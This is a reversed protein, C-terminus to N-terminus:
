RSDGARVHAYLMEDIKTRFDRRPGPPLIPVGKAGQHTMMSAGDSHEDASERWWRVRRLDGRLDGNWPVVQVMAPSFLSSALAVAGMFLAEVAYLENWTLLGFSSCVGGTAYGLLIGGLLMANFAALWSTRRGHFDGKANIWAPYHVCSLGWCLGSVARAAVLSYYSPWVACCTTVFAIIANGCSLTPFAAVRDFIWLAAISCLRRSRERLRVTSPSVRLSRPCRVNKCLGGVMIVLRQVRRQNSFLCRSRAPVIGFDPASAIVGEGLYDVDLDAKIDAIMSSVIGAEFSRAATSALIFYFYRRREAAEADSITTSAGRDDLALTGVPERADPLVPLAVPEDTKEAEEAM